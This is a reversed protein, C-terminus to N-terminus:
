NVILHTLYMNLLLFSCLTRVFIFRRYDKSQSLEPGNFDISKYGKAKAQLEQVRRGIEM